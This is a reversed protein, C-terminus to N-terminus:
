TRWDMRVPQPANGTENWDVTLTKPCSVSWIGGGVAMTLLTRLQVAMEGHTKTAHRKILRPLLEVNGMFIQVRRSTIQSQFTIVCFAAKTVTVSFQQTHTNAYIYTHTHTYMYIHIYIYICVYIAFHWCKRMRVESCLFNGTRWEANRIKSLWYIKYSDMVAM